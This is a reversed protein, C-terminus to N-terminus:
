FITWEFFLLERSKHLWWYSYCMERGLVTGHNRLTRVVFGHEKAQDGPGRSTQSQGEGWWEKSLVKSCRKTSPYVWEWELTKAWTNKLLMKERVEADMGTQWFYEYINMPDQSLHWRKWTDKGSQGQSFWTSKRPSGCCVCGVWKAEGLKASIVRMYLRIWKGRGQFAILGILGLLKKVVLDQTYACPRACLLHDFWTSQISSQVWHSGCGKLGEGRLDQKEACLLRSPPQPM